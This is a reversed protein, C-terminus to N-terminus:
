FREDIWENAQSYLIANFKNASCCTFISFIMLLVMGIAIFKGKVMYGDKFYTCIIKKM